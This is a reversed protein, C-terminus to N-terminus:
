TRGALYERAAARAEPDRRAAGLLDADAWAGVTPAVDELAENVQRKTALVVSPAKAALQEALADVESELDARPVVRNVFGVSKAEHADFPRCTLVLERTM